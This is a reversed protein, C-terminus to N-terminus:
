RRHGGEGVGGWEHFFWDRTGVLNPVAGRCMDVGYGLDRTVGYGKSAEVGM